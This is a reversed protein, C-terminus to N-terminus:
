PSLAMRELGNFKKKTTKVAWANFVINRLRRTIIKYLSYEVLGQYIGHKLRFRAVPGYVANLARLFRYFVTNGSTVKNIKNDIFYSAILLLDCFEKMGQAYWPASLDGEVEINGWEDMTKPFDFNWCKRALEFLETGPIPRFKNPQFIICQPNDKVLRFMLDRTAKLDDMTETPLGVIFNYAAIIEPHNALKQNCAIIDDVTCNKRMLRLVRDSGSEVGIHLIDTGAGALKDLFADTMRKIENIRAGRFGLQIKINRRNIEDIINEVHQLDVFSDDDIFYIYDANYREVVYEIHDVVERVDLPVWRKGVVHAYEAPASCFACKYPCGLASYMSFITRKQDLQGYGSYDKILDYPIERYNVQEFKTDDRPNHVIDKGKRYTVGKIASPEQHSRLSSVLNYFAQAAYGSVVFDCSWEQELIPEPFFTAHPGGWVVAIEPDVSKVLRGIEVANLIPKGTMVSIGVALVDPTLLARLRSKWSAPYLRNDLIEVAIGHKVLEISAYLLSLPAHKVFAGSFGQRPYVMIVKNRM